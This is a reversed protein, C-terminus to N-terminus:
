DVSPQEGTAMRGRLWRSFGGYTRSPPLKDDRAIDTIEDVMWGLVTDSCNWLLGFIKSIPVSQERLEVEPERKGVPWQGYPDLAASYAELADSFADRLDGPAHGGRAPSFASGKLIATIM